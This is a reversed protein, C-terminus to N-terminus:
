PNPSPTGGTYPEFSYTSVGDNVLMPKFTFDYTVGSVYRVGIKSIIDSAVSTWNSAVRNASTLTFTHLSDGADNQLRIATNDSFSMSNFIYFLATGGSGVATPVEFSEALNLTLSSSATATGKFSYVGNGEHRLTVGNVTKSSQSPPPTLNVGLTTEQKSNGHVELVSEFQAGSPPVNTGTEEKTEIDYVQGETLKWLADNSRKLSDFEARSVDGGSALAENIAGIITKNSTQLSGYTLSGAVTQSVQALSTKCSEYPVDTGVHSTEFLDSATLTEVIPLESIKKADPM